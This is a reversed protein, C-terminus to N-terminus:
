RCYKVATCAWKPLREWFDWFDRQVFLRCAEGCEQRVGRIRADHYVAGPYKQTLNMMARLTRNEEEATQAHALAATVESLEERLRANEQELARNEEFTARDSRYQEELVDGLRNLPWLLPTSLWETGTRLVDQVGWRSLAGPLLSLIVAAVAGWILMPSVRRSRPPVEERNRKSKM